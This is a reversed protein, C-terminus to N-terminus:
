QGEERDGLNVMWRRAKMGVASRQRVREHVLAARRRVLESRDM